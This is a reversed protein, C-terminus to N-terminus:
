RDARKRPKPLLRIGCKKIKSPWGNREQRGNALGGEPRRVLNVCRNGPCSGM